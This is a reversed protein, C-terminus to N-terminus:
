RHVDADVLRGPDLVEAQPRDRMGGAMDLLERLTIGLPAEYQGPTASTAPCALLHRLGHSKETGMAAFWSPARACSRPFRRSRSSTTSWPRAPTSVPSPPSRRRLRPQGRRGELSDLLATEEGCIYAGAGAHVTIELDFGSGLVDKGLYGAAYAEEVARAAPPCVHVVEGRLYIFAHNCGSRTPRSSWARSSARAPQGDHAPHGQLHGARVRRRQGRPLAAQRRGAPHVGVEHRDPLRRRRPRAPRLGQGARHRRRAAM